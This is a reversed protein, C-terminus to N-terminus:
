DKYKKIREKMKNINKQDNNEDLQFQVVKKKLKYSEAQDILTKNEKELSQYLEKLKDYSLKIQKLEKEKQNLQQEQNKIINSLEEIKDKLTSIQKEKEKDKEIKEGKDKEKNYEKKNLDNQLKFIKDNYNKQENQYNILKKLPIMQIIENNIMVEKNKFISNIREIDDELHLNYIKKGKNKRILVFGTLKENRIPTNSDYKVILIEKFKNRKRNIKKKYKSTIIIDDDGDIVFLDIARENILENSKNPSYIKRKEYKPYYDSKNKEDSDNNYEIKYNKQRDNSINSHIKKDGISYRIDDTKEMTVIFKDNSQDNSLENNKEIEKNKKDKSKNQINPSKYKENNLGKDDLSTRYLARHIFDDKKEKEEKDSYDENDNGYIKNKVKKKNKDEKINLSKLSKANNKKRKSNDEDNNNKSKLKTKDKGKIKMTSNDNNAKYNFFDYEKENEKEKEYDYDETLKNLTNEYEKTKNSKASRSNVSKQNGSKDKRQRTLHIKDKQSKAEITTNNMAPEEALNLGIKRKKEVSKNLSQKPKSQMEKKNNNTNISIKNNKKREM